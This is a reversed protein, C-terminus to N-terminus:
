VVKIYTHFRGTGCGVEAVTLSGPDRGSARIFEALPLLSMRQM